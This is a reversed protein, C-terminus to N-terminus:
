GAPALGAEAASEVPTAPDGDIAAELEPVLWEMLFDVQHPLTGFAASHVFDAYIERGETHLRLSDRLPIDFVIEPTPDGVIWIGVDLVDLLDVQEFPVTPYDDQYPLVDETIEAFGLAALLQGRAHQTNDANIIPDYVTLSGAHLGEWEPHAAAIEALQANTEDLMEQAEDEKGFVEAVLRFMQETTAAYIETGAVHAVTPAIESLREYMEEDLGANVAMILDPEAAAIREYPMEETFVDPEAGNLYPTDWPWTAFPQEGFYERQLVPVEGFHLIFQQEEYGVSVIRQPDVPVETEGFAHTITRTEGSAGNGGTATGPDDDGCAAATVLGLAAVAGLLTRNRWRTAM